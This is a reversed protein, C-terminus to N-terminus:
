EVIEAANIDYYYTKLTMSERVVDGRKVVRVLHMLCTLHEAGGDYMSIYTMRENDCAAIVGDDDGKANPTPYAKRIAETMRKVPDYYRDTHDTLGNVLFAEEVSVYYDIVETKPEDDDGCATFTVGMGIFLVALLMLQWARTAHKKIM